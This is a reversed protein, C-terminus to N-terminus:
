KSLIKILAELLGEMSDLWGHYLEKPIYLWKVVSIESTDLEVIAMWNRGRNMNPRGGLRMALINGSADESGTCPIIVAVTAPSRTMTCLIIVSTAIETTEIKFIFTFYVLISEISKGDM